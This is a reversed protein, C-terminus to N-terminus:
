DNKETVKDIANDVASDVADEIKDGLEDKVKGQKANLADVTGDIITDIIEDAEIRFNKLQELVWKKREAGMKSGQIIKEARKCFHAILVKQLFDKLSPALAKLVAGAVALAIIAGIYALVDKLMM